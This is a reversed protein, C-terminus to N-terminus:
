RDRLSPIFLTGSVTERAFVEALNRLPFAITIPNMLAHTASYVSLLKHDMPYFTALYEILATYRESKQRTTSFLENNFADAQLIVCPVTPTIPMKNVVMGTAEFIQMGEAAPDIGLELVLTDISSIGAIATVNLGLHRAADSVLESPFVLWQPHGYVALAVPPDRLAQDIVKAAMHQYTDLRHRGEKYEPILDVVRPGLKRIYDLVGFGHDVTFVTRCARMASAAELTLHQIPKIGLGIIYVDTARSRSSANM